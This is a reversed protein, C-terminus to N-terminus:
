LNRRMCNIKFLISSLFLKDSEYEINFAEKEKMYNTKRVIEQIKEFDLDFEKRIERGRDNDLYINEYIKGREHQAHFLFKKARKDTDAELLYKIYIYHEFLVRTIISILTYTNNNILV